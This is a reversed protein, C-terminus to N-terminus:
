QPINFQLLWHLPCPLELLDLCWSMELKVSNKLYMLHEQMVSQWSTAYINGAMNSLAQRKEQLTHYGKMPVRLIFKRLLSGMDLQLSLFTEITVWLPEVMSLVTWWEVLSGLVFFSEALSLKGSKSGESTHNPIQLSSSLTRSKYWKVNQQVDCIVLVWDFAFMESYLHKFHCAHLIEAGKFKM